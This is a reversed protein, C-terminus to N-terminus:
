FDLRHRIMLTGQASAYTTTNKYITVQYVYKGSLEATYNHEFHFVMVASVGDDGARLEGDITFETEGYSGTLGSIGYKAVVLKATYNIDQIESYKYPRGYSNILAVEWTDTNGGYMEVDPLIMVRNDIKAM